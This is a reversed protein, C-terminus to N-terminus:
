VDESERQRKEKVVADALDFCFRAILDHKPSSNGQRLYHMDKENMSFMGLAALVVSDRFEEDSM